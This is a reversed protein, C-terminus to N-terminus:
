RSPSSTAAAWSFAERPLLMVVPKRLVGHIVAQTLRADVGVLEIVDGEVVLRQQFEIAQELGIRRIRGRSKAREHRRHGQPETLLEVHRALQISSQSPSVLAPIDEQLMVLRM